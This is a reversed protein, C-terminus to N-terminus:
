RNHPEETKTNQPMGHLVWSALARDLLTIGSQISTAAGAGTGYISVLAFAVVKGTALVIDVAASVQGMNPGNPEVTGHNPVYRADLIDQDIHLYIMDVKQALHAVAPALEVGTFGAAPAAIITDTARILREEEPDLNRVDVLIIRDTPLPAVMRSAERWQPLGLGACVAVPMGGLMGSLTTHPTNFDGHADMWVLGIRAGPGHASQLGGVVGTMHSCNGGVMVVAEGNHQAQAVEDAIVGGLLGVNLAPDDTRLTEPFRPEVVVYPINQAAYV